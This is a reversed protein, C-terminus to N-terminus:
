SKTKRHKNKSKMLFNYSLLLKLIENQFTCFYDEKIGLQGTKIYIDYACGGGCIGIAPCRMCDKNKLTGLELWKYFLPEKQVKLNDTIPIQYKGSPYFAHCPGVTGAPSFFILQGFAPCDYLHFIEKFFYNARRNGIRDEFMQLENAKLYANFLHHALQKPDPVEYESPEKLRTLLNFGITIIGLKQIFEVIEEAYKYNQKTITCSIGVNVGAEKLLAVAKLASYFTEKGNTFVRNKDINAWGDLSLGVTVNHQKLKKALEETILSGNTVCSFKFKEKSAKELKEIIYFVIESYSFPEGGYFTVRYEPVQKAENILVNIVKDALDKSMSKNPGKLSNEIFCYGCRFNCFDTVLIYALNTSPKTRLVSNAISDFVKKEDFGQPVIFKMDILSKVDRSRNGISLDTLLKAYKDNTLYVKKLTLSNFLCKTSENINFLHSFPSLMLQAPEQHGLLDSPQNTFTDSNPENPQKKSLKGESFSVV